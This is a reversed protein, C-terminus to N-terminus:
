SDNSSWQTNKNINDKVEPVVSVNRHGPTGFGPLNFPEDQIGIVDGYQIHPFDDLCYPKGRGGQVKNLDKDEINKGAM